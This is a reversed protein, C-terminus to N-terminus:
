VIPLPFYVDNLSLLVRTRFYICVEPFVQNRFYNKIASFLCLWKHYLMSLLPTYYVHGLTQLGLIMLFRVQRVAFISRGFISYPDPCQHSVRYADSKNVQTTNM